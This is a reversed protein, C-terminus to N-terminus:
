RITRGAVLPLPSASAEGIALLSDNVRSAPLGLPIVWGFGTERVRQAQTGIDFVCTRLGANWADTL